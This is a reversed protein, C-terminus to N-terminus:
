FELWPMARARSFFQDYQFQALVKGPPLIGIHAGQHRELLNSLEEVQEATIYRSWRAMLNPARRLFDGHMAFQVAAKPVAGFNPNSPIDVANNIETEWEKFFLGIAKEAKRRQRRDHGSRMAIEGLLVLVGAVVGGSVSLIVSAWLGPPEWIM